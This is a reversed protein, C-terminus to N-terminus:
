KYFSKTYLTYYGHKLSAGSVAEQLLAFADMTPFKGNFMNTPSSSGCECGALSWRVQSLPSPSRTKTHLVLIGFSLRHERRVSDGNDPSANKACVTINRTPITSPSLIHEREFLLWISTSPIRAEHKKKATTTLSLIWKVVRRTSRTRM